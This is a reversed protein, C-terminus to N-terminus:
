YGAAADEGRNDGVAEITKDNLIMIADTRGITGRATVKYGMQELQKTVNEDFNREVLIEDPLWHHHFKPKNVADTLTM